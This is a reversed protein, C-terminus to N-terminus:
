GGSVRLVNIARNYFLKALIVLLVVWALQVLLMQGIVDLGQNPKTVMMLPTHYMTQFPLWYLVKQIGEPFFQLPVLAGSFVSILIEKTYSLGWISETYFSVIGVMYDISFSVLFALVLSLPFVALGPGLPIPVRFVVLLMFLTPVTIIALNTLVLGLNGFLNYLQYDVPKILTTIITGERIDSAIYWEAYNKLLIFVASGLAVYLFTEHFTLGHMTESQSYISRWLYYAVGMYIVNGLISFIFGFRYALGVMFTGRAIALYAKM